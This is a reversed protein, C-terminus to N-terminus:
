SLGRKPHIYNNSLGGKKGMDVAVAGLLDSRLQYGKGSQTAGGGVQPGSTSPTFHNPVGVPPPPPPPILALYVVGQWTPSRGALHCGALGCKAASVAAAGLGVFSKTKWCKEEEKGKHSVFMYTNPPVSKWSHNM